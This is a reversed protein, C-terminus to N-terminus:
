QMAARLLARGQVVPWLQEEFPIREHYGKGIGGTRKPSTVHWNRHEGEDKV